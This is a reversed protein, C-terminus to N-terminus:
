IIPKIWVTTGSWQAAPETPAQTALELSMLSGATPSAGPAAGSGFRVQTLGSALVQRVGGEIWLLREASFSLRATTGSATLVDVHQSGTRLVRRASQLRVVAADLATQRTYAGSRSAQGASMIKQSTAMLGVIPIMIVSLLGLSLVVEVMSLAHRNPLHCPRSRRVTQM